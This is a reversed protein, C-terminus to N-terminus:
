KQASKPGSGSLVIEADLHIKDSIMKDGLNKFFKGSGYRVNWETRDFTFKVLVKPSNPDAADVKGDMTVPRSVEKIKLNGVLKYQDKGNPTIQTLHLEAVPFKEVDFFDPSSLHGVLKENMGKDAIDLNVITKM